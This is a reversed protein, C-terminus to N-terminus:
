RISFSISAMLFLEHLALLDVESGALGGLVDAGVWMLGEAFFFLRSFAARARGAARVGGPGRRRRGDHGRRAAGHEHRGGRAWRVGWAASLGDLGSGGVRVLRSCTEAGGDAERGRATRDEPAAAVLRTGLAVLVVADVSPPPRARHGRSSPPPRARARRRRPNATVM